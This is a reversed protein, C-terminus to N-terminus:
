RIPAIAPHAAADLLRFSYAGTSTNSVPAAITLTYTGSENLTIPGYDNGSDTNLAQASSPGTLIFNLGLNPRVLTDLYLRQGISGSFTYSDHQGPQAINGNVTAGLTLPSSNNAPTTVSFSYPAPGTTNGGKLVLYYTGTEAATMEMGHQTYGSYFLNASAIGQMEPGYIIWQSATDGSLASLDNFFLRQGQTVAVRYVDTGLGPTLTGNVTTGLTVLPQSSADILRFSYAGTSNIGRPAAVTLTYVGPQLLLYPGVDANPNTSFIAHGDPATLTASIQTNLVSSIGDFYITKPSTVTFTYLDHEGPSALTARYRRAWRSRSPPTPPATMIFSYASTGQTNAGQLALIYAGDNPLTFELDHNSYGQYLLNVQTLYQNVTNYLVMLSSTDTTLTSLNQFYVRQGATGTFKYVNTSVGPSLM